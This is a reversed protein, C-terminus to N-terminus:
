IYSSTCYSKKSLIIISNISIFIYTVLPFIVALSPPIPSAATIPSESGKCVIVKFLVPIIVAFPSDGACLGDIAIYVSTASITFVPFIDEFLFISIFLEFMSFLPLIDEFIYIHRIFFLNTLVPFNWSIIYCYSWFIHLIFLKQM